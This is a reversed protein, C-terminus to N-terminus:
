RDNRCSESRQGRRRCAKARPPEPHRLADVQLSARNGSADKCVVRLRAAGPRGAGRVVVLEGDRVPVGDVDAAIQPLADCRDSCAFAARFRPGRAAPGRVRVLSAEVEPAVSDEVLVSLTDSARGGRGDDVELAITHAGLALEVSPAPGVV